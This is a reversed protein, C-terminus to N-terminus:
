TIEFVKGNVVQSLYTMEHLNDYTITGKTNATKEIIEKRLKVQIDPHTSLETIAYSIVTSSTDTGAFFFIFAQAVVEDFTLKRTETSVEGDISGKNKLQILMNLFDNREVQGEERQRISSGIVEFFFDTVKKNFQRLNIKKSFNPFAFMFFFYLTSPGNEGFVEKFVNLLDPNENKLTNAEMGFACSSVVDLTFRNSIDKMDISGSKSGKEVAQVFNEGKSSIQDFMLKIKGSTFTPSLKNRLFRWKEGGIGFLNGTLPEDEENVFVGRDVFNNFDKVTIHKVIELDTVVLSPSFLTYFGAIVDKGRTENYLKIVLDVMHRSKGVGDMNGYIMSPKLHPIGQEEFFAYKKKLFVYGISILPLVIYLLIDVLSMKAIKEVCCNLVSQNQQIDM